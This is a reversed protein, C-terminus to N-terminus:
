ASDSLEAGIIQGDFAHVEFEHNQNKEAPVSVVTIGVECRMWELLADLRHEDTVTQGDAWEAAQKDLDDAWIGPVEIRLVLNKSKEVTESM